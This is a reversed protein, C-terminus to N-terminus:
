VVEWLQLLMKAKRKSSIMDCPLTSMHFYMQEFPLWLLNMTSARWTRLRGWIRWLRRLVICSHSGYRGCCRGSSPTAMSWFRRCRRWRWSNCRCTRPWITSVLSCQSWSQWRYGSMRWLLLHTYKDNNDASGDDQDDMSRDVMALQWTWLVAQVRKGCFKAAKNIVKDEETRVEWSCQGGWTQEWVQQRPELEKGPSVKCMRIKWEVAM